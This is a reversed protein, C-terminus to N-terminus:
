SNKKLEEMLKKRLEVTHTEIKDLLDLIHQAEESIKDIEEKLVPQSKM